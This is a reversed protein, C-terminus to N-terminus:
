VSRDIYTFLYKNDGDVKFFTRTSVVRMEQM